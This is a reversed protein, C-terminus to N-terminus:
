SKLVELLKLFVQSYKSKKKTAIYFALACPVTSLGGPYGGNHIFLETIKYKKLVCLIRYFNLIFFFYRLFVGAIRIFIKTQNTRLRSYIKELSFININVFDVRRNNLENKLIDNIQKYDQNYFIIFKDNNPWNKIKNLIVSDLGGCVYNEIYIAITM